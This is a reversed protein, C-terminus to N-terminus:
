AEWLDVIVPWHDSALEQGYVSVSSAEEIKYGFVYDIREFVAPNMFGNFTDGTGEALDNLGELLLYQIPESAPNANFDGCLLAPVERSRLHKLIVKVGELRAESSKHDLHCNYIRLGALEVWTCIRTCASDWSRSGPVEPTTSLWFTGCEILGESLVGNLDGNPM